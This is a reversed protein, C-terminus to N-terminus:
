GLQKRMLLINGRGDPAHSFHAEDMAANILRLGLGGPRDPNWSRPHIDALAAPRAYDRLEVVLSGEECWVAVDLRGPWEDPRYGHRVINQVAEEVAILVHQTFEKGLRLQEMLAAFRARVESLTQPAVSLSLHYANDRM